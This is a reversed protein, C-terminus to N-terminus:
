FYRKDKRCNERKCHKTGNGQRSREKNKVNRLRMVWEMGIELLYKANKQAKMNRQLINVMFINIIGNKILEKNLNM